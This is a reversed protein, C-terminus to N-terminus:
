VIKLIQVKETVNQGQTSHKGKTILVTLIANLMYKFYIFLLFVVLRTQGINMSYMCVSVCLLLIDQDCQLVSAINNSKM